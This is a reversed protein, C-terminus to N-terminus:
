LGDRKIRNDARGIVSLDGEPSIYSLDNTPHREPAPTQIEGTAGAYGLYGAGHKVFIPGTVPGSDESEDGEIFLELNNLPPGIDRRRRDADSAPDAAAIAGM